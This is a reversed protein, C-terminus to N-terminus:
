KPNLIKLIDSKKFRITRSTIKYSKLIGSNTWHYLTGATIRFIKIVEKAKLFILEESNLDIKKM